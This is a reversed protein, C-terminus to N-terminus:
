EKSPANLTDNWKRLRGFRRQSASVFSRVDPWWDSGRPKSNSMVTQRRRRVGKEIREFIRARYRTLAVGCWVVCRRRDSHRRHFRDEFFDKKRSTHSFFKPNLINGQSKREGRRPYDGTVRSKKWIKCRQEPRENENKTRDAPWETPRDTMWRM